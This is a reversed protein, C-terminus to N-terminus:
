GQREFQVKLWKSKVGFRGKKTFKLSNIMEKLQPEKIIINNIFTHHCQIGQKQMWLQNTEWQWSAHREISHLKQRVQETDKTQKQASSRHNSVNWIKNPQCAVLSAAWDEWERGCKDASGTVSVM